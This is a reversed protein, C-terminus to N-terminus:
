GLPLNFLKFMGANAITELADLSKKQLEKAEKAVKLEEQRQTSENMRKFVDEIGVFSASKIQTDEKKIGFLDSLQEKGIHFPRRNRVKKPRKPVKAGFLGKWSSTHRQMFPKTKHPKGGPRNLAAQIDAHTAAVGNGPKLFSMFASKALQSDILKVQEAIEAKRKESVNDVKMAGGFAASFTWHKGDDAAEKLLEERKTKLRDITTNKIADGLQETTEHHPKEFFKNMKQALKDLLGASEEVAPAFHEGISEALDDWSNKMREIAGTGTQGVTEAVGGVKAELESLILKQAELLHNSEALEKILKEQEASFVVGARRLAVLGHEPDELAKGLQMVSTKLDTGFTESLDQALRLTQEFQDGKIDRFTALMAAASRTVDDEFRTSKQLESALANIEATSIGASNGTAAIVADLKAGALEAEHFANVCEIATDRVSYLARIGLEMGKQVLFGTAGAAAGMTASMQNALEAVDSQAGDTYEKVFSRSQSLGEVLKSNDVGIEVFSAGPSQLSM